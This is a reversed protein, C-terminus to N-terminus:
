RLSIHPLTRTLIHRRLVCPAFPRCSSGDLDKSPIIFYLHNYSPCFKSFLCPFYFSSCPWSSSSRSLTPPLRPDPLPRLLHGQYYPFLLSWLPTTSLFALSTSSALRQNHECCCRQVRRSEIRKKPCLKGRSRWFLLTLCRTWPWANFGRSTCHPATSRYQICGRLRIGDRSIM